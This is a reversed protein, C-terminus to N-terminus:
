SERRTTPPIGTNVPQSYQRSLRAIFIGGVIGPLIWFLLQWTGIGSLLQRAGFAIFATYAGIGSGIMAGLHEVWWEKAKLQAKLCYHLMQSGLVTGVAGFVVHLIKGTALGLAALTIGGLILGVVFVQHVPARLAHRDTKCRLVLLGHKVTTFTLWSLYLLFLSFLRITWAAEVQREPALNQGHIAIPDSLVLLCMAAGTFAVGFMTTAYYTGFRKHDIGGKKMTMPAWFLLLAASGLIVHLVFLISHLNQM